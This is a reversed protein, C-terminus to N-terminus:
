ASELFHLLEAVCTCIFQSRNAPSETLWDGYIGLEHFEMEGTPSIVIWIHNRIFLEAPQNWDEAFQRAFAEITANGAQVIQRLVDLPSSMPKGAPMIKPTTPSCCFQIWAQRCKKDANLYQEVVNLDLDLVDTLQDFLGKEDDGLQELRAIAREHCKLLKALDLQSLGKVKRRQRIYAGFRSRPHKM